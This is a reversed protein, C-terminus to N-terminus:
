SSVMVAKSLHREKVMGTTADRFDNLYPQQTHAEFAVKDQYIEWILFRGPQEEDQAVDFRLCGPERRSNEAHKQVRSSFEAADAADVIFEVDIVYM